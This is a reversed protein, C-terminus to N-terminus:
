NDLQVGNKIAIKGDNRRRYRPFGDENVTTESRFQKPYHKTCKGNEMCPSNINHSGCPGHLMIQVVANYGVPDTQEDPLEASIIEDILSPDRRKDERELFLLIHAHPM